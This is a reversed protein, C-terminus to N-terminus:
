NGPFKKFYPMLKEAIEGADVHYTGTSVQQKLDQIKKVRDPDSSREKAELMEMAESSISVEDKRRAQKQAEQRQTEINRKYPNVGGIRGTDNIKM